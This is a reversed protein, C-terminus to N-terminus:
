RNQTPAIELYNLFHDPKLFSIKHASKVILGEQQMRLLVKNVMSRSAGIACALQEQTITLSVSDAPIEPKLELLEESYLRALLKKLRIDAEDSCASLYLGTVMDMSLYQQLLIREGLVPFKAVLSKFDTNQVDYVIGDTLARFSTHRPLSLLSGLMGMLAGKKHIYLVVEKGNNSVRTVIVQGEVLYMVSTSINGEFDLIEKKSIHRLHSIQYFANRVDPLNNFFDWTLATEGPPQTFDTTM